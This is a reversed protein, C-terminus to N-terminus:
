IQEVLSGINLLSRTSINISLCKLPVMESPALINLNACPMHALQSIIITPPFFIPLWLRRNKTLFTYFTYQFIVFSEYFNKPCDMSAANSSYARCFGGEEGLPVGRCCANWHSCFLHKFFRVIMLYPTAHTFLYSCGQQKTLTSPM